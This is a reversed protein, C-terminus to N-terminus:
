AKASSAVERLRDCAHRNARRRASRQEGTLTGLGVADEEVIHRQVWIRQRDRFFQLSGAVVGTTNSLPMYIPVAAGAEDRARAPLTKIVPFHALARVAVVVRRVERISILLQFPVAVVGDRLRAVCLVVNLRAGPRFFWEKEPERPSRRMIGVFGRRRLIARHIRRLLDLQAAVYWGLRLCRSALIEDAIVRVTRRQIVAHCIQQASKLLGAESIARNHDKRGIM